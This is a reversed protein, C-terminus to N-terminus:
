FNEEYEDRVLIYEYFSKNQARFAFIFFETVRLRSSRRFQSFKIGM